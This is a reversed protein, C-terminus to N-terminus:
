KGVILGTPSDILLSRLQDDIFYKRALALIRAQYPRPEVANETTPTDVLEEVM